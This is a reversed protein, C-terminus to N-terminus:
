KKFDLKVKRVLIGDPINDGSVDLVDIFFYFKKM